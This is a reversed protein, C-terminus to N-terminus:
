RCEIWQSVGASQRFKVILILPHPHPRHVERSIDLMLCQSNPTIQTLEPEKRLCSSRGVRAGSLNIPMQRPKIKKGGVCVWAALRQNNWVGGGERVLMTRTRREPILMPLECSMGEINAYSAKKLNWDNKEIEGEETENESKQTSIITVAIVVM